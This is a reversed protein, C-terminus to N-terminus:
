AAVIQGERRLAINVAFHPMAHLFNTTGDLPDVIWTHTKDTGEILGREKLDQYAKAVTMPAVGTMDAMERVSPLQEGPLLQGCGVGYEILGRLQTGLPIPLDRDVRFEM